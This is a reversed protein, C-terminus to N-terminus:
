TGPASPRCMAHESACLTRCPSISFHSYSSFRGGIARPRAPAKILAFIAPQQRLSRGDHNSILGFTPADLSFHGLQQLFAILQRRLLLSQEIKQGSQHLSIFIFCLVERIRRWVANQSEQHLLVIQSLDIQYLNETRAATNIVDSELGNPPSFVGLSMRGAAQTKKVVAVMLSAAVAPGSAGTRITS